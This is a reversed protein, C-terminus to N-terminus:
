ETSGFVKNEADNFLADLVLTAPSISDMDPIHNLTIRLDYRQFFGVNEYVYELMYSYIDELEKLWNNEIIIETPAYTKLVTIIGVGLFRAANKFIAAAEGDGKKVSEIMVDFDLSGREECLERLIRCKGESLAKQIKKRIARNSAYLELCGNCGCECREGESNVMIHGFEGVVGKFGRYIEGNFLIGSGIGENTNLYVAVGKNQEVFVNKWKLTLLDCNNDNDIYSQYGTERELMDRFPINEFCHINPLQYVVGNEYDVIGPLGVGMGIIEEKKLQNEEVIESILGKIVRLYDSVSYENELYKHIRSDLLDLNLNFVSVIIKDARITTGLIKFKNNNFRFIAAKRGGNSTAIGEEIVLGAEMLENVLNNVTVITLGCEEALEKKTISGKIRCLKSIELINGKKMLINNKTM